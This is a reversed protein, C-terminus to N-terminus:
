FPFIASIKLNTFPFFLSQTGSHPMAYANTVCAASCRTQLKILAANGTLSSSRRSHLHLILGWNEWRYAPPLAFKMLFNYPFFYSTSFTSVTTPIDFSLQTKFTLRYVYYHEYINLWPTKNAIKRNVCLIFWITM